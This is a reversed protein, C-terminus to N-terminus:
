GRAMELHDEAASVALLYKKYYDYDSDDLERTNISSDNDNHGDCFRKYMNMYNIYYENSYILANMAKSYYKASVSTGNDFESMALGYFGMASTLSDDIEKITKSCNSFEKAYYENKYKRKLSETQKEYWTGHNYDNLGKLIIIEDTNNNCTIAPCTKEVCETIPCEVQSDNILKIENELSVIKDNLEKIKDDDVKNDTCGTLLVFLLLVSIGLIIKRM